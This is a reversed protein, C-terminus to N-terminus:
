VLLRGPDSARSTYGQWAEALRHVGERIVDPPQTFTLRVARRNGSDVSLSPGPIVSVGRRLAADTFDEANGAPLHAWFSLGGSPTAVQWDPLQEALLEAMLDRRPALEARREALVETRHELLRVALVQTIPSTGMDAVTKTSLMRTYWSEPSRIWGVRMGAWYLKSVSGITHIGDGHAHSAIPAPLPTDDLALDAMALDEIVAIGHRDAIEALERRREEPMVTGTPNHFHPSVYILRPRTRAVLDAIMDTRAGGGDVPLPIAHAEFRRFVDLAGPYTPSEVLVNDGPQLVQRGILSIAQHAGNTIVIQNPTTPLGAATMQGAVLERLHPLGAPLYGHTGMVTALDDPTLTGALRRVTPSPTLAAVSLEIIDHGPRAVATAPELFLRRTAVADIGARAEPAQRVWTGSGQRSELWGQAKLLDYAAVVTSRSINLMRALTREPPLVTGLPIEGHDITAKLAAALQRYLPADGALAPALLNAYDLGNGPIPRDLALGIDPSLPHVAGGIPGYGIGQRLLQIPEGESGETSLRHVATWDRESRTHWGSLLGARGCRQQDPSVDGRIEWRPSTEKV